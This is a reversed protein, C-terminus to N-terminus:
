VAEALVEECLEERATVIIALLDSKMSAKDIFGDASFRRAMRRYIENGHMSLVVVKAHPVLLKIEKTAEYGGGETVDLDMLVLDPQLRQAQEVAEVGNAAEGVIEVGQQSGLFSALIRRFGEHDDAVLVKLKNM